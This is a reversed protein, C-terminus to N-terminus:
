ASGMAVSGAGGAAMRPPSEIGPRERVRAVAAAERTLLKDRRKDFESGSATSPHARRQWDRRGRRQTELYVRTGLLAELEHRAETGAEKLVAGGKGIM